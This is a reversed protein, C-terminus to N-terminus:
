WDWKSRSESSKHDIESVFMGRNKEFCCMQFEHVRLPEVKCAQYKTMSDGVNECCDETVDGLLRGSLTRCNAFLASTTGCLLLSAAVALKFYMTSSYAHPQLLHTTYYSLLCSHYRKKSFMNRKNICFLVIAGARPLDSTSPTRALAHSWRTTKALVYDITCPLFRRGHGFVLSLVCSYLFPPPSPVLVFIVIFSVYAYRMVCSHSMPGHM